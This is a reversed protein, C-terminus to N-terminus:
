GAVARDETLFTALQTRSRLDLKRYIAGLHHEVTKPSLFLSSGVERNTRGDAVLMAVQLERPSLEDVPPTDAAVVATAGGARLEDRAREAWPDAGLRVFIALAEDLPARADGRRRARRRREGIVLLTRAREFPLDAGAHHALAIEAQADVDADDALLIRGRAVAAHAWSAGSRTAADALVATAAAADDLRGVRVLAEVHDAAFMTLTPQPLGRAAIEAARDLAVAADQPRGATLECFGLAATAWLAIADAGVVDAMALAEGATERAVDFHGRGAEARALAPLAAALVGLQGTERALGVAEAADARAARWRGQRWGIHSRVALPYGLRGAAGATRAASVLGDIAADARAFREIWTSCLAGMAVVEALELPPEASLLLPEAAGLLETAEAGHGLAAHGEGCILTALMALDDAVGSALERARQGTDILAGMDGTYMHALAAQVLALAAAARDGAALEEAACAELLAVGEAPRGGRIAIDARARDATSRVGPDDALAAAILELARGDHGALAYASAAQLGRRARDPAVPTLETARAAAHAADAHAGRVTADAAVAELEAAAQEHPGTVSASRHWARRAPHTTAAALAAHAARREVTPEGHYAASALLPHRFAPLGGPGDVVLGADRAPALVDAPLGLAALAATLTADPASGCAALLCLARRTPEPLEALQRAFIARVGDRAALPEQLPVHGDRQEPSLGRALERLALPNGAAADLLSATVAPALEAREDLLARAAGDDLGAITLRELGPRDIRREDPGGDRSALLLGIGDADLRSAAFLIAERSADDLWQADDVIVLVPGDDAAAGLLAMFAAPVAFADSTPSAPELALAAGLAAADGPALQDRLDLVPAALDLLGAYPIHTEAEHGITRLVRIGDADAVTADLLSTKGIGAPGEVLLAFSRGDALGGLRVHIQARETTRGHLVCVLSTAAPGIPM